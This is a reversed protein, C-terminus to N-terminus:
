NTFLSEAEEEPGISESGRVVLYALSSRIYEVSGAGIV